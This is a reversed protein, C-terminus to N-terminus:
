VIRSHRIFILLPWRGEAGDDDVFRVWHRDGEREVSQVRFRTGGYGIYTLGPSPLMLADIEAPTLQDSM